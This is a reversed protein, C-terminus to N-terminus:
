INIGLVEKAAKQLKQITEPNDATAFSIFGILVGAKLGIKGKVSFEDLNKAKIAEEIKLRMDYLKSM